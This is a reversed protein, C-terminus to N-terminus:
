RVLYVYVELGKARATKIMHQTGRSKGDWLAILAEGYEAMQVNRMYGAQKGNREWNAPFRIVPISRREAWWRGLRDAGRAEGCVVETIQFGSERIADYLLQIDTMTRSGAIITKM